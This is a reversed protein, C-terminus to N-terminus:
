LTQMLHNVIFNNKQQWERLINHYKNKHTMTVANEDSQETINNNSILNLSNNKDAIVSTYSWSTM